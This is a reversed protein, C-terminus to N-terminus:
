FWPTSTGPLFVPKIDIMAKWLHFSSVLFFHSEWNQPALVFALSVSSPSTKWLIWAWSFPKATFLLPWEWIQFMQTKKREASIHLAPVGNWHQQRCATHFWHHNHSVAWEQWHLRLGERPLILGRGDKHWESGLKWSWRYMWYDKLSMLPHNSTRIRMVITGTGNTKINWYSPTLSNFSSANMFTVQSKFHTHMYEVTTSKASM